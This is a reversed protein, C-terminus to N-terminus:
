HALSNLPKSHSSALKRRPCSNINVNHTSSNQVRFHPSLNAQLSDSSRGLRKFADQRNTRLNHLNAPSNLKSTAGSKVNTPIPKTTLTAPYLNTVSGSVHSRNAYRALTRPQQSPGSINSIRPSNKPNYIASQPLPKMNQGRNILFYPSQKSSPRSEIIAGGSAPKLSDVSMHTTSAISCTPSHSVHSLSLNTSSASDSRRYYPLKSFKNAGPTNHSAKDFTVKTEIPLLNDVDIVQSPDSKHRFLFNELTDWGGGIRVMVRSGKLLRVFVIRDAIKYKGESLRTVGKMVGKGYYSKAIRMVKGDLDSSNQRYSDNGDQASMLSSRSSSLESTSMSTTHNSTLSVSSSSRKILTPISSTQKKSSSLHTQSHSTSASETRGEGSDLSDVRDYGKASPPSDCQMNQPEKNFQSEAEDPKQTSSVEDMETLRDDCSIPDLRSNTTDTQSSNREAAQPAEKVSQEAERDRAARAEKHQCYRLILEDTADTISAGRLSRSLNLLEGHSSLGNKTATVASQETSRKSSGNLEYGDQFRSYEDEIGAALERDIEQEFKVLGPAETFGHKVYAIRAVDLM